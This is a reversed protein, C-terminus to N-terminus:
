VPSVFSAARFDSCRNAYDGSERRHSLKSTRLIANKAISCFTIIIPAGKQVQSVHSVAFVRRTAHAMEFDNCTPIESISIARRPSHASICRRKVSRDM